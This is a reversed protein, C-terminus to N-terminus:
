CPRYSLEGRVWASYLASRKQCHLAIRTFRRQFWDEPATAACEAYQRARLAELEARQQYHLRERHTVAFGQKIRVRHLM